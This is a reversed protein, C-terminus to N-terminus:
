FKDLEKIKNKIKIEITKRFHLIIPVSIGAVVTSFVLDAKFVTILVNLITIPIAPLAILVANREQLLYQYELDVKNKRITTKKDM